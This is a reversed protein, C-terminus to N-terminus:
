WQSLCKREKIREWEADHENQKFRRRAVGYKFNTVFIVSATVKVIKWKRRTVRHFSVTRFWFGKRLNRIVLFLLWQTRDCKMWRVFLSWNKDKLKFNVWKSFNSSVVVAKAAAVAVTSPFIDLGNFFSSLCSTSEAVSSFNSTASEVRALAILTRQKYQILGPEERRMKERPSIWSRTYIYYNRVPDSAHSENVLPYDAVFRRSLIPLWACQDPVYTCFCSSLKM